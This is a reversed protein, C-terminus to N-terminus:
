LPKKQKPSKKLYLRLKPDVKFFPVSKPLYINEIRRQLLSPPDGKVENHLSELEIFDEKRRRQHPKSERKNLSTFEEQTAYPTQPSLKYFPKAFPKRIYIKTLKSPFSNTLM